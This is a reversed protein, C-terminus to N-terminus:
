LLLLVLDDTHKVGSLLCGQLQGRILNAQDLSASAYANQQAYIAQQMYASQQSTAYRNKLVDHNRVWTDRTVWGNGDWYTDNAIDYDGFARGIAM